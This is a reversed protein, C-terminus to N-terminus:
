VTSAAGTAELGIATVVAIAARLRALDVPKPLHENMGAALYASRQAPLVNATVAIIPTRGAPGPLARIARTAAEGDMEPMQIDMLVLDYHAAQLQHLAQRGDGVVDASHGLQKLMALILMQNVANDEAVLVRLARSAGGAVEGAPEVAAPPAPALTLTVRFESGRGVESVVEIHGGMLGVLQRCIALGLGSGGFRRSMSSDAQTFRDFLTPLAAAPIGIGTDRVVVCLATRGDEQPQQRVSVEVVGRETFKLANGVLNLLVQRLRGADGELREPLGPALNLELAVGKEAARPALLAVVEGALGAPDFPAAELAVAGAELRSMDLIDNIIALLAEGSSRMTQAYKQQTPNLATCLLLGNMGLVGNLPTRIEHSMTALFRTKAESAAVAQQRARELEQSAAQARTIDRYVTVVGGTVTRHKVTHIIRGDATIQELECDGARHLAVRQDVWRQREGEDAQPLVAGAAVGALTRLDAGQAMTPRLHPFMDLYHENWSVVREEADWLLFGEDMSALAQELVRKARDKEDTAAALRMLYAQALAGVLVALLAFAVAMALVQNRAPGAQAKTAAQSIGAAVLVSGYVTPRVSLQAPAGDLRGPGLRAPGNADHPDLPVANRRGLLADRAPVSALLVGAESELTLSLGEIVTTPALITTLAVVPVEAVAVVRDGSVLGLARALYLVKDGSRFSQVPMSIALQPSPQALVRDLFGAPLSAGMRQTGADAAALVAGKGDLLMLDRALLDQNVLARLVATARQTDVSRGDAALLAPMQPLGALMLDVGVLQRNLASETSRALREALLRAAAEADRQFGQLLLTAVTVVAVVFVGATLWVVRLARDTPKM